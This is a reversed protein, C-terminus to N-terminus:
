VESYRQLNDPLAKPFYRFSKIHGNWYGILSVPAYGVNLTTPAVGLGTSPGSQTALGNRSIYLLDTTDSYSAAISTLSGITVGVTTAPSGAADYVAETTGDCAHVLLYSATGTFEFFSDLGSANLTPNNNRDGSVVITGEDQNFWSGVTLSLVDANRTATGGLTPMYSTVFPKEELQAGWVYVGSTSNGQYSHIGYSEYTPNATNSLIVRGILAASSHTGTVSCKYWGNGINEIRSSLYTSSSGSGTKTVLGEGSLDFTASVWISTSAAGNNMTVYQRGASKVFCSFTSTLGAFSSGFKAVSHTTNSGNEQLFDATNLGSPDDTLTTNEVSGSGFANLGTITWGSFTQSQAMKNESQEEMLLGLPNGNADYEFRPGYRETTTTSIYPRATSSRELQAGWVYLNAVTASFAAGYAATNSQVIYIHWSSSATIASTSVVCRYWGDGVDQISATTLTGVNGIAGTSVNFNAYINSSSGHTLQVFLATGAKVYVSYTSTGTQTINYSIRQTAATGSTTLRDASVVGSPSAIQNAAVVINTASWFSANDFQESYKILNEPAYQILGNSGRFTAATARSFVPSPGSYSPILFNSSGVSQQNAFGGDNVYGSTSFGFDLSPFPELRQTNGIKQSLSLAYSM